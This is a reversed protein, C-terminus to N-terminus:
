PTAVPWGASTRALSWVLGTLVPSAGYTLGGDTSRFLGANTAALVVDTTGSTDAKVDPVSTSAGLKFANSWTEGGDTSRRAFGGVGPDFPDGTGLYITEPNKGFAASGGSTSLISDTM